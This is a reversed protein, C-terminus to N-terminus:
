RFYPFSCDANQNQSNRTSNSISSTNRFGVNGTNIGTNSTNGQSQNRNACFLNNNKRQHQDTYTSSDIDSVHGIGVNGSTVRANSINGQM